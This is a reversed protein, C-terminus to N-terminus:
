KGYSIRLGFFGSKGKTKFGLVEEYHEDFMNEFRLFADTNKNIQYKVTMGAIIYSSLKVRNAPFSSFDLDLSTGRYDLFTSLRLPLSESNWDVMLSGQHSPRRVEELREGNTGTPESSDIYTYNLNVEFNKAANLRSVFEIGKRKSKGNTNLATFLGDDGRTFGNIENKLSEYFWTLETNLLRDFLSQEVSIHWGSSKEPKLNPNGRFSSDENFFGFRETFTPNKQGTSYGGKLWTDTKAFNIGTGIKFTTINNFDSNIDHRIAASVVYLSDVIGQYEGVIGTNNLHRNQNPNGFGADVGRQRFRVHEHDVAFTLNNSLLPATPIQFNFTSQYALEYKDASTKSTSANQANMANNNSSTWNLDLQSLLASKFLSNSIKLGVVSNRTDLGTDSDSVFPFGSDTETDAEEYRGHIQMKFLDNIQYEGNSNITLIQFGDDEAGFRSINSGGSDVHSLFFNAGGRDNGIGVNFSQQSTSHSGQEFSAGAKIGKEAKKTIINIVGAMADSGWLASQPGRIVEIRDINSTTLTAFNFEDAGAPDNVEIGDILVMTHNAESGRTRLQTFQGNGGSTAISLGPVTRLLDSVAFSQRAEIEDSSIITIANPSYRKETAIRSASVVIKEAVDETVSHLNNSLLCFFSVVVILRYFM